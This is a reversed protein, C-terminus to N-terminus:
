LLKASSLLVFVVWCLLSLQSTAWVWCLSIESDAQVLLRFKRSCPPLRQM